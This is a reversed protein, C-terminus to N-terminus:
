NIEIKVLVGGSTDKEEAPSGKKGKEVENKSGHV